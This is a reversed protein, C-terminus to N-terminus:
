SLPYMKWGRKDTVVEIFRVLQYMNAGKWEKHGIHCIWRLLDGQTKLNGWHIFYDYGGWKLTIGDDDISFDDAPLVPEKSLDLFSIEFTSEDSVSYGRNVCVIWKFRVQFKKMSYVICVTDGSAQLSIREILFVRTSRYRPIRHAHRPVDSM